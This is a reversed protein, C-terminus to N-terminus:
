DSDSDLEHTGHLWCVHKAHKTFFTDKDRPEPNSRILEWLCLVTMDVSLKKLMTRTKSKLSNIDFGKENDLRELLVNVDKHWSKTKPNFAPIKRAEGGDRKGVKSESM